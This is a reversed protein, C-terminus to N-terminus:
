SEVIHKVKANLCPSSVGIGYVATISRNSDVTIDEEELVPIVVIVKWARSCKWTEEIRDLGRERDTNNMPQPTGHQTLLRHAGWKSSLVLSSGIRGILDCRYRCECRGHWRFRM